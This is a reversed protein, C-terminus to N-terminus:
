KPIVNVRVTIRVEPQLKIEAVYDGLERIEPLTVDRKDVEKATQVRIADVLDQTTVTGFIQKGIASKRRFSFSGIRQLMLAFSEAEEKIRNKEAERREKELKVERLYEPSALTAKGFPFLYNRFYGPKVSLLEGTKGLNPVDEILIIQRMKQLKRHAVIELGHVRCSSTFAISPKMQPAKPVRLGEPSTVALLSSQSAATIGAM